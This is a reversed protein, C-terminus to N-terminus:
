FAPRAQKCSLRENAKQWICSSSQIMLAGSGPGALIQLGGEATWTVAERQAANLNALWPDNGDVDVDVARQKGKDLKVVYEDM